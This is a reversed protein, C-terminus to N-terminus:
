FSINRIALPLDPIPVHANHRTDPIRWLLTLGTEVYLNPFSTRSVKDNLYYLEEGGQEIFKKLADIKERDISALKLAHMLSPIDGIEDVHPEEDVTMSAHNLFGSEVRSLGATSQERGRAKSSHITFYDETLMHSKEFDPRGLNRRALTKTRLRM